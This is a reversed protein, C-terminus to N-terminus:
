KGRDKYAPRGASRAEGTKSTPRGEPAKEAFKGGKRPGRRDTVAPAIEIKEAVVAVKLQATVGHLLNVAVHHEGLSNIAKEIVVQRRDVQVGHKELFEHVDGATVSGFMKGDRGVKKTFVCSLKGIKCAFAESAVKEATERDTKKKKLKEIHKVSAETALKAFGRPLLFNRAYGPSVTVKDGESGLGQVNKTLIIETQM